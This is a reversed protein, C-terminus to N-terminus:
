YYYYYYRYFLSYGLNYHAEYRAKKNDINKSYVLARKFVSYSKKWERKQNLKWGFSTLMSFICSDTYNSSVLSAELVQLSDKSDFYKNDILRNFTTSDSVCESALKNKHLINQSYYNKKNSTEWTREKQLFSFLPLVLLIYIIKNKM